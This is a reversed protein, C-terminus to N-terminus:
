LLLWAVVCSLSFLQVTELVILTMQKVLNSIKSLRLVNLQYVWLVSAFINQLFDVLDVLWWLNGSSLCFSWKKYLRKFGNWAKM